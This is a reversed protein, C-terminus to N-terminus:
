GPGLCTIYGWVMVSGGGYKVAQRIDSPKPPAGPRKWTIKLGNSDFIVFKSEDSFAVQMWNIKNWSLFVRAWKLRRSRAKRSLFPVRRRKYVKLQLEHLRRRVTNVSVHPFFRRQLDAATKTLGRAFLLAAWHKDAFSLLRPRGAGQKRQYINLGQSYRRWIRNVTSHNIGGIQKAVARDSLGLKKLAVLQARKSPSKMVVMTGPFPSALVLASLHTLLLRGRSVEDLIIAGNGFKLRRCRAM